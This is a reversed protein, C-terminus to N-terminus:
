GVPKLRPRVLVTGEGYRDDIEDRTAEDIVVVSIEVVNDVVDIGSSLIQLGLDNAHLEDRIEELEALSREHQWVCLAGDWVERLEREHRELDGTFAATLIIGKPDVDSTPDYEEIYDIWVGSVDPARQALRHAAQFDPDSTSSGDQQWGGEPEPCPTGIDEYDEGSTDWDPPGPKQTLMFRKGDFTGVVHYDGWTTGSRREEGEVEDWNWNTVPIDGCQPPLSDLVGGLCLMPPQDKSELVTTTVEYKEPAEGGAAPIASSTERVKPTADTAPEGCAALVCM